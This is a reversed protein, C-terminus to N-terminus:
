KIPIQMMNISSDFFPFSRGIQLSQLFLANRYFISNCVVCYVHGERNIVAIDADPRASRVMEIFIFNM